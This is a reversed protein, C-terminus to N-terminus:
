SQQGIQVPNRGMWNEFATTSTFKWHGFEVADEDYSVQVSIDPRPTIVELCLQTGEPLYIDGNDAEFSKGDTTKLYTKHGDFEVNTKKGDLKIFEIYEDGYSSKTQVTLRVM